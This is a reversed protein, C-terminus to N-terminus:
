VKDIFIPSAFIHEKGSRYISNSMVVRDVLEAIQSVSWSKVDSSNVMPIGSIANRRTNLKNRKAKSTIFDDNHLYTWPDDIRLEMEDMITAIRSGNYNSWHDKSKVHKVGFMTRSAVYSYIILFM